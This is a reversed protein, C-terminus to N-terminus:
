DLPPLEPLTARVLRRAHLRRGDIRVEVALTDSTMTPASGTWYLYDDFGRQVVEQDQGSRTFTGTVKPRRHAVDRAPLVDVCWFEGTGSAGGSSDYSYHGAVVRVDAVREGAATRVPKRKVVVQDFDESGPSFCPGHLDRAPAAQAAVGVAITTTLLLCGLVPGRASM